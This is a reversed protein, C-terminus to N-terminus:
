VILYFSMGRDRPPGNSTGRPIRKVPRRVGFCNRKEVLVGFPRWAAFSNRARNSSRGLSRSMSRGIGTITPIRSPYGQPSPPAFSTTV